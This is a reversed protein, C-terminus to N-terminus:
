NGDDQRLRVIDEALDCLKNIAGDRDTASGECEPVTDLDGESVDSVVIIWSGDRPLKRAGCVLGNWDVGISEPESHTVRCGPLRNEFTCM